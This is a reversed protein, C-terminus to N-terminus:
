IRRMFSNYLAMGIGAACVIATISLLNLDFILGFGRLFYYVTPALLAALAVAGSAVIPSQRGVRRGTAKRAMQAIYTGVAGGIVFAIMWAFFGGFIVSELFMAVTCAALSLPFIIAAIIVYDNTTGQFYRDDSAKAEESGIYGTPTHVYCKTCLLRGSRISRLMMDDDPSKCRPKIPCTALREEELSNYSSEVM